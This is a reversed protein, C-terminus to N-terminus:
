EQTNLNFDVVDLVEPDDDEIVLVLDPSPSPSSPSSSESSPEGTPSPDSPGAQGTPSSGEAQGLTGDPGPAPDADKVAELTIQVIAKVAEEFLSEQGAEVFAYKRQPGLVGVARKMTEVAKEGYPGEAIFRDLEKRYASFDCGASKVGVLADPNAPVPVISDEYLEQRVFEFGGTWKGEEDNIDRVELPRFGVSSARLMDADVLRFIEQSLATQQHFHRVSRLRNKGAARGTETWLGLVTGLPVGRIDHAWLLPAGADLFGKWEWGPVRIIDGYRDVVDSSSTAVFSADKYPVGLNDAMKETLKAAGTVGFKRVGKSARQEVTLDKWVDRFLLDM